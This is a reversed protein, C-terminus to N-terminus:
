CPNKWPQQMWQYVARQHQWGVKTTIDWNVETSKVKKREPSGWTQCLPCSHLVLSYLDHPLSVTFCRCFLLVKTQCLNLHWQYYTHRLSPQRILSLAFQWGASDTDMATIWPFTQLFFSIRLYSSVMGKFDTSFVNNERGTVIKISACYIM